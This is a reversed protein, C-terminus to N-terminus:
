HLWTSFNQSNRIFMHLIKLMEKLIYLTSHPYVNDTSQGIAKAGKEESLYWLNQETIQPCRNKLSPSSMRCIAPQIDWLVTIAHSWEIFINKAILMLLIPLYSISHFSVFWSFFHDKNDLLIFSLSCLVLHVILILPTKYLSIFYIM